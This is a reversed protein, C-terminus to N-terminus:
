TAFYTVIYAIKDTSGPEIGGFPTEYECCFFAVSVNRSPRFIDM